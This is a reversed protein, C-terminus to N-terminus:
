YKRLTVCASDSTLTLKHKSLKVQFSTYSQSIGFKLLSDLPVVFEQNVYDGEGTTYYKFTGVGISDSGIYEFPAIYRTMNEPANSHNYSLMAINRQFSYYLLGYTETTDSTMKKEVSTVQWMGHLDNEIYYNGECAVFCLVPILLSLIYRRFRM